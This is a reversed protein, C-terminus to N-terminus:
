TTETDQSNHIINCYVHSHLYKKSIRIENLKFIYGSAANSAQLTTRNKIKQSPDASNEM